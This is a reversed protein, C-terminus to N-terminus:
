GVVLGAGGLVAQVRSVWARDRWSNKPFHVLCPKRGRRVMAQLDSIWKQRLHFKEMLPCSNYMMYNLSCINTTPSYRGYKLLIMMAVCDHAYNEGTARVVTCPAGKDALRQQEMQWRDLFDRGGETNKIWVAGGPWGGHFPELPVEDNVLDPEATFSTVAIDFDREFVEGVDGTLLVDIDAQLVNDYGRMMADITADVKRACAEAYTVQEWGLKVVEIKSHNLGIETDDETYILIRNARSTIMSPLCFGLRDRYDRSCTLVITFTESM